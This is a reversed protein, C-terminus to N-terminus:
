ARPYAPADLRDDRQVLAGPALAGAAAPLPCSPSGIGTSTVPAGGLYGSLLLGGPVGGHPRAHAAGPMVLKTGGAFLFLRSLPAQLTWVVANGARANRRDRFPITTQM